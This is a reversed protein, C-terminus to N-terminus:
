KDNKVSGVHFVSRKTQHAAIITNGWLYVDCLKNTKTELFVCIQAIDQENLDAYDKLLLINRMQAFNFGSTGARNKAVLNNFRTIAKKHQAKTLTM